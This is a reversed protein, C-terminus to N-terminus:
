VEDFVFLFHFSILIVSSFCVFFVSEAGGNNLSVGGVDVFVFWVEGKQGQAIKM